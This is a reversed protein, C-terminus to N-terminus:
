MSIGKERIADALEKVRGHYRYGNRDFVASKIGVGAAKEGLASGVWKAASKNKGRVEASKEASSASVLTRGADDDVIQAFVNRNSFYVTVRPRAATGRLAKRIRAKRGRRRKTKLDDAKSM